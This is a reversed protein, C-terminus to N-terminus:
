DQPDKVLMKKYYVVRQTEDFGLARHAVQSIRNDIPTDSALECCGKGMAWAEVAGLLQRALGERRAESVVYIGELFGVPTSDTGNVYDRRLSAEAFGIAGAKEHVALFQAYREPDDCCVKMEALHEAASTDPWLAQRLALWDARTSDSCVEILVEGPPQGVGAHELTSDVLYRIRIKM